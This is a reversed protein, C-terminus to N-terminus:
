YKNIFIKAIDQVMMILADWSTLSKCQVAKHTYTLLTQVYEHCQCFLGVVLGTGKRLAVIDKPLIFLCVSVYLGVKQNDCENGM